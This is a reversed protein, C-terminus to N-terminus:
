HTIFHSKGRAVEKNNSVKSNKKIHFQHEYTIIAVGM